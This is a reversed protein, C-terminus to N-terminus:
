RFDLDDLISKIASSWENGYNGVDGVIPKRGRNELLEPNVEIFKKIVSEPEHQGFLYYVPDPNGGGLKISFKALGLRKDLASVGGPLESAPTPGNEELYRVSKTGEKPNPNPRDSFQYQLDSPELGLKELAGVYSDLKKQYTAISYKGHWDMEDLTPARGIGDAVRKIDDLISEKSISQYQNPELGARELAENWSGFERKYDDPSHPGSERCERVTPTKGIDNAFQKLDDLLESKEM